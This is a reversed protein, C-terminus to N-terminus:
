GLKRLQSFYQVRSLIFRDCLDHYADVYLQGYPRFGCNRLVRKSVQHKVHTLGYLVSHKYHTFALHVLLKAAKSAIGRGHFELNLAYGIQWDGTGPIPVIAGGGAILHGYMIFWDGGPYNEKKYNRIKGFYRKRNEQGIRPRGTIFKMVAPNADKRTHQAMDLETHRKLWVKNSGPEGYVKPHIM